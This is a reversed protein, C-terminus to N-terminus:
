AAHKIWIDGDSGGSPSSTSAYIVRVGATGSATSAVGSFQGSDNIEFSNLGPIRFKTINADGLTIENSVTAASAAAQYGIIINNSGTTLDNTGSKAANKGFVSNNSGTTIANGANRGYGSNGSATTSQNLTSAGTATNEAGTSNQYLCSSGIAVNKDATTTSYGASAGM